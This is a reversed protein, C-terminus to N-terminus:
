RKQSRPLYVSVTTGIGATSQVDLYGGARKVSGYAESLGLGKSGANRKTTFFPEFVRNLVKTPMGIGDDAIEVAVFDGARAGPHNAVFDASLVAPRTRIWVHGDDGIADRANDAVNELARRIQGRDAFVPLPDPSQHISLIRAGEFLGLDTPFAEEVLERLDFAESEVFQRRAYALLRFILKSAQDSAARISNLSEVLVADPDRRLAWEAEAQIVTLLNNFEHAMGGAINGVIEMPPPREDDVSPSHTTGQSSSASGTKRSPPPDGHTDTGSTRPHRSSLTSGTPSPPAAEVTAWRMFILPTGSDDARAIRMGEARCPLPREQGRRFTIERSSFMGGAAWASLARDVADRDDALQDGLLEGVPEADKGLRGTAVPNAALILGELTLLLAPRRIHDTLLHFTDPTM